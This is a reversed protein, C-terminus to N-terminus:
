FARVHGDVGYTNRIWNRDSSFSSAALPNTRSSLKAVANLKRYTSLPGYEQVAKQLAMRRESESLKYSYGYKALEGKRLPGIVQKGKGALGVDKVCSAKVYISRTKPYIKITKGSRTQKLYGERATKTSIKRVYASRSIQGPPCIKRSRNFKMKYNPTSTKTSRVCTSKVHKGTNKRTYGKRRSFGKPCSRTYYKM